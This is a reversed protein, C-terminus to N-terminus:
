ISLDLRIVREAESMMFNKSIFNKGNNSMERLRDYNGYLDCILNAMKKGDDEVIMSGDEINLGEAGISTTVLPIQFYGAEM